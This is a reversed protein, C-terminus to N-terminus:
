GWDYDNAENSWVLEGETLLVLMTGITRHSLWWDIERAVWPSQASQPSAMLLFHASAELKDEIASWLSPTASLSTADRCVRLARRRYWPKAFGQLASQVIPALKKDAAHSYSLFANYNMNM